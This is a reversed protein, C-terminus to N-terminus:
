FQTNYVIKILREVPLDRGSFLDKFSFDINLNEVPFLKVGFNYRNDKIDNFLSDMEFCFSVTKLESKEAPYAAGLFGYTKATSKGNADKAMNMNTGFYLQLMRVFAETEGVVYLGREKQTYSELASDYHSGQGDYGLAVSPINNSGEFARLKLFLAPQRLRPNETGILSVIDLSCGITMQPFVGFVIRSVAGGNSYLRFNMEMSYRENVETTPVDVLDMIAFARSSCLALLIILTFKLKTM